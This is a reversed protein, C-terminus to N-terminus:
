QLRGLLKYEMIEIDTLKRVRPASELIFSNFKSNTLTLIYGTDHPRSNTVRWVVKPYGVYPYGQRMVVFDGEKIM